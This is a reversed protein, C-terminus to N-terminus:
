LLLFGVLAVLSCTKMLSSPLTTLIRNMVLSFCPDYSAKDHAESAMQSFEM